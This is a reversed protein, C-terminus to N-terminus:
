LNDSIIDSADAKSVRIVCAMDFGVIPLLFFKRKVTATLSGKAKLNQQSGVYSQEELTSFSSM